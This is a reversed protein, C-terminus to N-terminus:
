FLRGPHHLINILLNFLFWLIFAAVRTGCMVSNILYKKNFNLVIAAGVFLLEIALPNLYRLLMTNDGHYYQQAKDIVYFQYIGSVTSAIPLLLLVTLIISLNKLNFLSLILNCYIEISKRIYMRQRIYKLIMGKSLPKIFHYLCLWAIRRRIPTHACM